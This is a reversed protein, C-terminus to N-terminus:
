ETIWNINCVEKAASSLSSHSSLIGTIYPKTYKPKYTIWHSSEKRNCRIKVRKGYFNNDREDKIIYWGKSTSSTISSSSSSSFSTGGDTSFIKKAVVIAIGSLIAGTLFNSLTSENRRRKEKEIKRLQFIGAYYSNQNNQKEGEKKLRLLLSEKLLLDYSSLKKLEEEKYNLTPYFYTRNNYERIEGHSSSYILNGVKKGFDIYTGQTDVNKKNYTFIIYSFLNSFLSNNIYSCFNFNNERHTLFM